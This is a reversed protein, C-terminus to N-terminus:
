DGPVRAPQEPATPLLDARELITELEQQKKASLPRLPPRPPGGALGLRDLAAKVGPVGLGKVVGNHLPGVREQLRGARPGDGSQWASFLECVPGTALLGVGVIGGVAGLELAPYLLAGSGVVVRARGECAEALAGLNEIDGSSDKIGVINEHEVLRGVLGPELHVPAFVPINYLIVPVPSADAVALFHERLAEPTMAPRYYAPPRVLVADAGRAASEATLSIVASTSEAGTGAIVQRDGVLERTSEVLRLHEERELLPAEGTSGAAVIGTIPEALWVRLNSEYSSLDV